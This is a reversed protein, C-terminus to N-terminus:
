YRRNRENWSRLAENIRRWAEPTQSIEEETPQIIKTPEPAQYSQVHYWNWIGLEYVKKSRLVYQRNSIPKLRKILQAELQERAVIERYKFTLQSTLPLVRYATSLHGKVRRRLNNSEGIYRLTGDLYVAYVGSSEPITNITNATVSKWRM